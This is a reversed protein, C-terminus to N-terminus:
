KPTRGDEIKTLMRTLRKRAAAFRKADLDAAEAAEAGKLGDILAMAVMIAESDSELTRFVADLQEKAALNIEPSRPDVGEVSNDGVEDRTLSHGAVPIREDLPSRQARRRANSAESRMATALVVLPPTGRPFRRQGALLKALTEDLLDGAEVGHLGRVAFAALREAKKWDTSEFQDFVERVEIISLSDM